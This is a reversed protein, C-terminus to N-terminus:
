RAPAPTKPSSLKRAEKLWRDVSRQLNLKTNGGWGLFRDRVIGEADIVLYTPYTNVEYLRIVKRATDHVEPWNMKHEAVYDRVKQAEGQGDSSIGVMTFPDKAYQRSIELLTPTAARCPACWTGWFDLLVVRGKLDALSLLEGDMTAISFEPAYPERARRPNEVLKKALDAEPTRAGTGLYAQLEAVGEEDRMQRLLTVGLNYRAMTLPAPGDLVARFSAEADKLAKDTSKQALALCALGRENHLQAAMQPQDGAHKLADALIDAASKFAQLGAYAKAMGLMAVASTKNARANAQKFADLAPEYQRARLASEGKALLQAVEPSPAQPSAGAAGSAALAAFVVTGIARRLNM